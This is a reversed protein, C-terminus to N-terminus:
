SGFPRFYAAQRKTVAPQRLINLQREAEVDLLLTLDPPESPARSLEAELEALPDQQPTPVYFIELFRKLM